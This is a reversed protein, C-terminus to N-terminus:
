LPMVPLDISDESFFAEKGELDKIIVFHWPQSNTATPAQRGAELINQLVRDTIPENKYKIISRRTLVKEICDM